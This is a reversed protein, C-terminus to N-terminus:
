ETFNCALLVSILKGLYLQKYVYDSQSAVENVLFGYIISLNYVTDYFHAKIRGVFLNSKKFFWINVFYLFYHGLLVVTSNDNWTTKPNSCYLVYKKLISSNGVNDQVIKM